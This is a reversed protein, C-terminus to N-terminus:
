EFINAFTADFLSGSLSKDIKKLEPPFLLIKDKKLRM